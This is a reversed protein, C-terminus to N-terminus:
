GDISPPLNSAVRPLALGAGMGTLLLSPFTAMWSGSIAAIVAGFLAGAGTASLLTARAARPQGRLLALTVAATLAAALAGLTVAGARLGSGVVVSIPKALGQAVIVSATGVATFAVTVRALGVRPVEEARNM